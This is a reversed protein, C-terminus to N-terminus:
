PQAIDVAKRDIHNQQEDAVEVEVMQLSSPKGAGTDARGYHNAKM